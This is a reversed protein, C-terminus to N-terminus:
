SNYKPLVTSRGTSATTKSNFTDSKGKSRMVRRGMSPQAAREDPRLQTKEMHRESVYYIVWTAGTLLVSVVVFIWFNPAIVLYNTDNDYDFFNMGFLGCIFTPPLYFLGLKTINRVTASDDVTSHTLEEMHRNMSTALEQHKLQLSYELLAISNDIRSQLADLGNIYGRVREKLAAGNTRFTSGEQTHIGMLLDIVAQNGKCFAAATLIHDRTARFGQVTQFGLLESEAKTIDQDMALLYDNRKQFGDGKERLYWRWTKLYTELLVEHVTGPDGHIRKALSREWPGTRDLRDLM